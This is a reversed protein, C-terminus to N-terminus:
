RRRRRRGDRGEVSERGGREGPAELDLKPHMKIGADM